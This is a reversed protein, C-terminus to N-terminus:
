RAEEPPPPTYQGRDKARDVRATYKRDVGYIHKWPKNGGRRGNSM